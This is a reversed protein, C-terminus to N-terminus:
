TPNRRTDPQSVATNALARKVAEAQVKNVRKGVMQGRALTQTCMGDYARVKFAVVRSRNDCAFFDRLYACLEDITMTCPPFGDRDLQSVLEGSGVSPTQGKSQTKEVSM